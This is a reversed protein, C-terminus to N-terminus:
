IVEVSFFVIYLFLTKKLNSITGVNNTELFSKSYKVMLQHLIEKIELVSQNTTNSVSYVNVMMNLFKTSKIHRGGSTYFYSLMKTILEELLPDRSSIMRNITSTMKSFSINTKSCVSRLIKANCVSDSIFSIYIKRSNINVLTSVNEIDNLYMEGDDAESQMMDTGQKIGKKHYDYYINSITRMMHKIRGYINTIYYTINDDIPDKLVDNFNEYHSDAIYVITNYITKYKKLNFRNSNLREITAAMVDPNPLYSPFFAGFAAKYIRLALYLNLIKAFEVKGFVTNNNKHYSILTSSLIYFENNLILYDKSILKCSKIGKTVDNFPIGTSDIFDREHLKTFVPRKEPGATAMSSSIIDIHPRIIKIMNPVHRVLTNERKGIITDVLTTTKHLNKREVVDRSNKINM